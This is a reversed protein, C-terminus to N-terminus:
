SLKKIVQDRPLGSDRFVKLIFGLKPRKKLDRIDNIRKFVCNKLM